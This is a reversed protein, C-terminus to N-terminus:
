KKIVPFLEHRPVFMRQHAYDGEIWLHYSERGYDEIHKLVSKIHNKLAPLKWSKGDELIWYINFHVDEIPNSYKKYEFPIIEVYKQIGQQLYEIYEEDLSQEITAFSNTPGHFVRDGKSFRIDLDQVVHDTQAPASKKRSRIPVGLELLFSKVKQSSIYNRQAIASISEGDQYEKAISKKESESFTKNKAAKKLRVIREEKELFDNIITDLRKTNYPIGLHECIAKKTKKTKIMWLAQRIKAEPIELNKVVM